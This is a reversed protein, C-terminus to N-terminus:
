LAKYRTKLAARYQEKTLPQKSELVRIRNEQGWSKEFLLRDIKSQAFEQGLDRDADWDDKSSQVEAVAQALEANTPRSRGDEVRLQAPDIGDGEVTFGRGAYAGGLVRDLNELVKHLNSM